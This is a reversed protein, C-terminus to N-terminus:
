HVQWRQRPTSQTQHEDEQCGDDPSCCCLKGAGEAQKMSHCNACRGAAALKTWCFWLLLVPSGCASM